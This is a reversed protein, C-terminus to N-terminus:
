LNGDCLFVLVHVHVCMTAHLQSNRLICLVVHLMSPGGCLCQYQVSYTCTSPTEFYIGTLHYCM